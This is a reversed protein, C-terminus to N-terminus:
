SVSSRRKLWAKALAAGSIVGLANLLLDDVNFQRYACPYLGWIGTLQTLEVTLTLLVGFLAIWRWVAVHRVLAMGIAVCIVFNMVSAALLRNGLYRQPTSYWQSMTHITRVFNFPQLQPMATDVPCSLSGPVPFPHQTLFVFSLIVCLFPFLYWPRPSGRLSILGVIAVSTLTGYFAALGVFGIDGFGM